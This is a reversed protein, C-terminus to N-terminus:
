LSPKQDNQQLITSAITNFEFCLLKLCPICKAVHWLTLSKFMKFCQETLTPLDTPLFLTDVISCDMTMMQVKLGAKESASKLQIQYLVITDLM